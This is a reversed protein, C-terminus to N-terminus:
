AVEKGNPDTIHETGWVDETGQDPDAHNQFLIYVQHIYGLSDEACLTVEVADEQSVNLSHSLEYRGTTENLFWDATADRPESEIGNVTEVVTFKTFTVPKGEPYEAAFRATFRTTGDTSSEASESGAVKLQPLYGQYLMCLEDEPLMERLTGAETEATVWIPEDHSQAFLDLELTGVFADQERVLTLPTHNAYIRLQMAKATVKPYLRLNVKVKNTGEVLEGITYEVSELLSHEKQYLQEQLDDVQEELQQVQQQLEENEAELVSVTRDLNRNVMGFVLLTALWALVVLVTTVTWVTRKM